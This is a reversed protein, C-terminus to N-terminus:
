QYVWRRAADKSRLPPSKSGGAGGKGGGGSGSGSRDASSASGQFFLKMRSVLQDSRSLRGSSSGSKEKSEKEATSGVPVAPPSPPSNSSIDLLPDQHFSKTSAVASSFGECLVKLIESTKGQFFITIM